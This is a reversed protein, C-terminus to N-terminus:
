RGLGSAPNCSRVGLESGLNGTDITSGPPVIRAALVNMEASQRAIPTLRLRVRGGGDLLVLTDGEHRAKRVTGLAALFRAEQEMVAPLCAMRTTGGPRIEVMGGSQQYTGFYRNCAARGAVKQGADFALTSQVRDVVGGGDINEALWATGELSALAAGAPATPAASTCGFALLAVALATRVATITV